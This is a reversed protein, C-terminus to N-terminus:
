QKALPDTETFDCSEGAPNGSAGIVFHAKVTLAATKGDSGLAFTSSKDYTYITGSKPDTCTLGDTFTATSGAVNASLVCGAAINNTLVLDSTSGRAVDYTIAIGNTVPQGPQDPSCNSLTQVATSTKWTGLFADVSAHAGAGADAPTSAAGGDPAPTGPTGPASPSPDDGVCGVLFLAPLLKRWMEGAYARAANPRSSRQGTRM